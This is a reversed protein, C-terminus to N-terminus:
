ERQTLWEQLKQEFKDGDWNFIMFRPLLFPDMGRKVPGEIITCANQFSLRKVIGPTDKSYDGYPYAFSTIEKNLWNQLKQKGTRIEEEQAKVPWASLLAHHATHGGIEFLRSNAMQRLEDLTMPLHIPDPQSSLAAWSMIQEVAKEQGQFSLPRILRWSFFFLQNKSLISGLPPLEDTFNFRVESKSDINWRIYTNNIVMEFLKPLEQSTLIRTLRDWWFEQRSEMAYSPIFFTAPVDYKELTPKAHHYNDAFGDDFTVAITDHAPNFTSLGMRMEQMKVTIGYKKIVRMHEDFNKPSVNLRWPDPETESVRHYMLIIGTRKLRAVSAKIWWPCFIKIKKVVNKM